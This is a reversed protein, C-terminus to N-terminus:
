WLLFVSLYLSMLPVSNWELILNLEAISTFADNSFGKTAEFRIYRTNIEKEFQIMKISADKKFTGRSIPDGWTGLTDSVYVAYDSIWGNQKGDQRPLYTIGKLEVQKGLDLQIEHPHAPKENAWATHWFTKPNNDIANEGENGREFSDVRVIKVGLKEMLSPEHSIAKISAVDVEIAPKFKESNMYTLLSHKLQRAAPRNELDNLIDVSCLVISGNGVKAEFVLGLRKPEFWDPVVQVIPRLQKPMHDMEMVAAHQIPQSWQWNSHYETPFAVLAPHRPNCLIGLTHPAKGGTWATNWFISSFGLKVNTKVLGPKLALLVKSGKQLQTIAKKDLLTSIAVEESAKTNVTEPYIWIDWDNWVNANEVTLTLKYKAPAPIDSLGLTINGVTYLDGAPMKDKHLVGQKVANDKTDLLSWKINVDSLDASGFQSVDVQASLTESSTFIRKSLRALPVVPGSFRKYEAPTVYPKSDWFPDLVGVLATGQGPFDHLDLLQFGGFNPTRLASEIDEKYCLTQLKGSAMLFDHAQDLMHKQELLDRFIEFNKAKLVGTYKKIEDFDPYVCWQGIEHSITAQNPYQKVYASYDTTTEPAKSNIRSRLEQGWGQIRPRASVHFDSEDILPWGSGSTVLRRSDKQKYHSVWKNLYEAHKGGPENGYAFLLFSPHNGYSKLIADAEAYLWPDIPNGNGIKAWASCEIQYYFGLEDAAVFAAEPPCWSHFRIHNLGHAKCINIIRKWEQVDTPPYGTKPFICCELTGRFFVHSENLIFRNGDVKFDRLGFSVTRSNSGLRINLKYLNPSFEDWLLAKPGIDIDFELTGGDNTWSVKKSGKIGVRDGNINWKIRGRGAKGTQNGIKVIVKASKSKANPYVQVDDIWVPSAATLKLEGTLGNWNSQTHDSVSHANNGVDVIMRNDVRVTIRHEGPTLVSSMNHLHSTSLSNQTSVLQNDVWVMTEWHPRELTLTIRKNKWSRPIKVTKQYWAQGKYYKEPQLWFPMKFNDATRYPAYKAKNWDGRKVAGTWPTELGPADGYGQEQISGPLQVEAQGPLTAEFWNEQQGVSQPDLTMKCSGSLDIVDAAFLCCSFQAIFGICVVPIFHRM